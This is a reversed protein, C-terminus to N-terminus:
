SSENTIVQTAGESSLDLKDVLRLQHSRNEPSVHRILGIIRSLAMPMNKVSSFEFDEGIYDEIPDIGLEKLEEKFKGYSSFLQAFKVNENADGHRNVLSLFFKKEKEPLSSVALFADQFDETLM